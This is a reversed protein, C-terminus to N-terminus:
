GRKAFSDCCTCNECDCTSGVHITTLECHMGDCNHKCEKVDCSVGSNMGKQM